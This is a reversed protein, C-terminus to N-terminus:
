IAWHKNIMKDLYKYWPSKPIIFHTIFKNFIIDPIQFSLTIPLLKIYLAKASEPKKLPM